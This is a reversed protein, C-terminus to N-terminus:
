MRAHFDGCAAYRRGQNEVIRLLHGYHKRYNWTNGDRKEYLAYAAVVAETAPISYTYEAGTLLNIVRTTM